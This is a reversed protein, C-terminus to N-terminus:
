PRLESPTAGYVRRFARHFTSVDNFGCAFAIAAVSQDRAAPNALAIRSAQLRRLMLAEAFSTGSPAFAAHLTRPSIHLCAAVTAADLTPDSFSREIAALAQQRRAEAVAGRQREDPAASGLAITLLHGLNATVAGNHAVEPHASQANLVRLYSGLLAPVGQDGRLHVPRALRAAAGPMMPEITAKPLMWFRHDYSATAPTVFPTDADGVILDGSAAVFGEHGEPAFLVPAPGVQEFIFFCDAAGAAIDARTRGIHHPTGRCHVAIAEAVERAEFRAWFRAPDAALEPTMRYLAGLMGERYFTFREHPPLANTDFARTM